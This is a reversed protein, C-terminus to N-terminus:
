IANTLEQGKRDKACCWACGGHFMVDCEWGWWEGGVGGWLSRRLSSIMRLVGQGVGGGNEKTM